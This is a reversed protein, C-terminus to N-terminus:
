VVVDCRDEGLCALVAPSRVSSEALEGPWYVARDGGGEPRADVRDGSCGAEVWADVDAYALACGDVCGGVAGDGLGFVVTAAAVGDGDVVAVVELGAVAVEGYEAGGSALVDDKTM